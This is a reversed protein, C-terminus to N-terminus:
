LLKLSNNQKQIKKAWSSPCICEMFCVFEGKIDLDELIREVEDEADSADSDADRADEAAAQTEFRCLIEKMRKQDEASAYQSGLEDM